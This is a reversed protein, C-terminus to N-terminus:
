FMSFVKLYKECTEDKNYLSCHDKFLKKIHYFNDICFEIKELLKEHDFDKYQNFVEDSVHALLEPCFHLVEKMSGSDFGVVPIGCAVAEMVSNPCAPNLQCHILIDTAQLEKAIEEKDMKGLCRIYDRNTFSKVESNLIPGIIKFVINYRENIKDLALVVPELMDRNRFSGTATFIVKNKDFKKDVPYFVELDTGNLIISYKDEPIEGMMTFCELRSFESQFIIFDSYKLYDLKIDKNYYLYRIGHKSPYYVGDLRQIISLNNAKFHDLIRKNYSIPFFISDAKEYQREDEIFQYETELLYQRLHRMFTSPGGIGNVSDQFPIFIM